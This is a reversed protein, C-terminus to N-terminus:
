LRGEERALAREVADYHDDRETIADDIAGLVELQTMAVTIESGHGYTIVQVERIDDRLPSISHISSVSLRHDHGHLDTFTV